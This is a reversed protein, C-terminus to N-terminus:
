ELFGFITRRRPPYLIPPRPGVDPVVDSPAPQAFKVLSRRLLTGLCWDALPLVVNFNKHMYRHHLIHHGNLRFFIGTREVRRNKPLHMCWHLYEYTAYYLTAAIGSGLVLWWHGFFLCFIVFPVQCLAILVPGNWWAMPIKRPNQTDPNIFHYDAGFKFMGHHVKAHADFAYTFKFGCVTVVKHMVTSHLTWEFFSDVIVGVGFGISVLVVITIM